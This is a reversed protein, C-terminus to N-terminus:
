HGLILYLLILGAIWQVFQIILLQKITKESSLVKAQLDDIKQNLKILDENIFSTSINQKEIRNNIEFDPFDDGYDESDSM